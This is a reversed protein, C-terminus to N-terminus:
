LSTMMMFSQSEYNFKRCFTNRIKLIQFVLLIVNNQLKNISCGEYYYYFMFGKLAM